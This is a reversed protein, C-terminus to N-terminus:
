ISTLNKIRHLKGDYWSSKKINDTEWLPRLNSYHFCARQEESKTLDFSACPKIHDISWGKRGYNDWTMGTTFQNEIYKKLFEVSCGVLAMTHNSKTANQRKLQSRLSGSLRNRLKFNVDTKIRSLIRHCRSKKNEPNQSYKANYKSKENQHTANYKKGYNLLKNKYNEDIRWKDMRTERWCSKCRSTGNPRANRKYFEGIPKEKKCRCCIKNTKTNPHNKFSAQENWGRNYQRFYDKNALYNKKGYERLCIKCRAERGDKSCCSRGFDEVPKIKRCISCKKTIGTAPTYCRVRHNKRYTVGEQNHCAKCEYKKGDKSESSKGFEEIPKELKCKCCIKNM